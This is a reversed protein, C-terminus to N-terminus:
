KLLIVNVKEGAKFDEKEEPLVILCDAIAFSSLRFSEQASLPEAKGNSIRGKLFHTLGKNKHYDTALPLTITNNNTEISAMQLLANQLYVYFCSLGSAPNGPLGFVMKEGKTGFFLPKGPKQKIRHFISEIGAVKCAEAVFDYDGVSVGGTLIVVDAEAVAKTLVSSLSHLDDEVQYVQPTPFHLSELAAVLMASNSEYVQGPQLPDGPRCLENGTVIISVKPFATVKVETLGLMALYGIAPASLLTGAKLAIDGIAIESGKPRLDIGKQINPYNIFLLGDKVETFEQMVITDATEPVPAGTFIRICEGKKLSFNRQPGAPQEGVIKLGEVNELDEFRIAYGDKSSQPFAPINIEAKIDEALVHHLSAALACQQSPLSNTHEQILTQAEKISIM